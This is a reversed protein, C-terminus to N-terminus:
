GGFIHHMSHVDLQPMEIIYMYIYIYSIYIEYIM